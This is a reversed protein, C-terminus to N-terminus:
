KSPDYGIFDVRPLLVFGDYHRKVPYNLQNHHYNVEINHELFVEDDLSLFALKEGASDAMLYFLEEPSSREELSFSRVEGGMRMRGQAPVAKLSYVNGKTLWHGPDALYEALWEKVTGFHYEKQAHYSGTNIVVRGARELYRDTLEKMVDERRRDQYGFIGPTSRVKRSRSEAYLMDELINWRTQGWEALYKEKNDELDTILNGLLSRYSGGSRVSSIFADLTDTDEQSRAFAELSQVFLESSWNIDMAKVIFGEGEPVKSNFRRVGELFIGYTREMRELMEFPEDSQVYYNLIWSEAQHWELLFYRYGERYLGPLMSVLLEQHGSIDHYEGIILADYAGLRDTMEAPVDQSFVVMDGAVIEALDEGHVPEYPDRVVFLLFLLLVISFPVTLLHKKHSIGLFVIGAFAGATYSHLAAAPVWRFIVAAASLLVLAFPVAINPIHFPLERKWPLAAHYYFVVAAAGASFGTGEAGQLLIVIGGALVASLVLVAYRASGILRETWIGVWSLIGMHIVFFVWHEHVFGYTLIGYWRQPFADYSLSETGAARAALFLAASTLLFLVSIPNKRIKLIEKM